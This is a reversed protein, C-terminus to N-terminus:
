DSPQHRPRTASGTTADREYWSVWKRVANDSVGYRRGVARYGLEKVEAILQQYPPREAKRSEPRPARLSQHRCSASCYRYHHSKPKFIQQCQECRRPPLRNSGCHTEFTSACNACVIRLNELRNDTAIGNTHDLILAMRRGRWMEGQGCLECARVKIGAAYLRKKLHARSYSSQEVMVEELPVARRVSWDRRGANPDFHDTSIQWITDAYKRLIRHNGGADRVGLRRLSEAYSRSAAIAARAEQETYRPGYRPM